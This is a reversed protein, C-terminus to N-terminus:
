PPVEIEHHLALPGALYTRMFLTENYGPEKGYM